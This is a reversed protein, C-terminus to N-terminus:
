AAKAGAGHSGPSKSSDSSTGQDGEAEIVGLALKLVKLVRDIKENAKVVNQKEMDNKDQLTDYNFELLDIKRKLELIKNERAGILTESDKKLIELKSELEKERVRIKRIDLRVREKLKEYQQASDNLRDEVFKIRDIKTKVEFRLQEVEGERSKGAHQLEQDQTEVRKKLDNIQHYLDENEMSLRKITNEGKDLEEKAYTLQATLVSVDQERMTLYKKLTEVDESLPGGVDGNGRAHGSGAPSFGSRTMTTDRGHTSAGVALGAAGGAFLYPLDKAAEEESVPPASNEQAYVPAAVPVPPPAAALEAAEVVGAGLDMSALEDTVAFESGISPEPALPPESVAVAADLAPEEVLPAETAMVEGSLSIGSEEPSLTLGTAAGAEPAAEAVSHAVTPPPVEEAPVEDGASLDIAFLSGDSLPVEAAPTPINISSNAPAAAKAPPAAVKAPPAAVKAAPAAAKPPANSTEVEFDGGLSIEIGGASAESTPPLVAPAANTEIKPADEGGVSFEIGSSTAGGMDIENSQPAAAQPAAAKPIPAAPKKVAGGTVAQPIMPGSPKSPAPPPADGDAFLSIPEAMSIDSPVDESINVVDSAAELKINLSTAGTSAAKSGAVPAAFKFGTVAEITSELETMPSKKSFYANAGFETKQHKAFEPKGWATSMLVYPIDATKPDKRMMQALAAGDQGGALERCILVLDIDDPKKKMEAFATQLAPIVQCFVSLKQCRQSFSTTFTKDSDIVIIRM